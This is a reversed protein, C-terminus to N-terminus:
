PAPRRPWLRQWWSGQPPIEALLPLGLFALDDRHHIRDDVYDLVFAIAVGAVLALILRLPLDLRQRLPTPAQAISPPDIVAVVASDTTLQAFYSEARTEIVQVVAEALTALEQPDHWSLTITLIRHLKGATSIGQITAPPVPIGAAVSVDEAFARSKVVESFDDVLYESTLWTYYYDYAYQDPSRPEPRVGLLFRMSATYTPAPRPTFAVYSVTLAVLLVAVIWLRRRVIRWYHRFEM